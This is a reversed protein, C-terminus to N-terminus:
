QSKGQWRFAFLSLSANISRRHFHLLSFTSSLRKNTQSFLDVLRIGGKLASWVLFNRRSWSGILNCSNSFKVQKRTSFLYLIKRSLVSFPVKCNACFDLTQKDHGRTEVDWMGLGLMKADWTGSDRRGRTGADGQGQMGADGPERRGLGM